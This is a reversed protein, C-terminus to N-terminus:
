FRKITLRRDPGRLRAITLYADSSLASITLWPVGRFFSAGIAHVYGGVRMEGLAPDGLGFTWGTQQSVQAIAENLIEGDFALM